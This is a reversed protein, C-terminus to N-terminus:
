ITLRISSQDQLQDHGCQQRTQMILKDPKKPHLWQYSQPCLFGQFASTELQNVTCLSVAWCNAASFTYHETHGTASPFLHSSSSKPEPVLSVLRDEQLVFIWATSPPIASADDGQRPWTDQIWGLILSNLCALYGWLLLYFCRHKFAAPDNQVSSCENEYTHKGTDESPHSLQLQVSHQAWGCELISSPITSATHTLPLRLRGEPLTTHAGYLQQQLCVQLCTVQMPELTVQPAPTYLLTRPAPSCKPM